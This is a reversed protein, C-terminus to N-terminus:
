CAIANIFVREPRIENQQELALAFVWWNFDSTLIGDLLPLSRPVLYLELEAGFIYQVISLIITEVVIAVITLVAIEILEDISAYKWYRKYLGGWTFAILKVASFIVTALILGNYYKTLATLDDLRLIIALLPTLCFVIGDLILFHRNNLNLLKKDLKILKLNLKKLRM